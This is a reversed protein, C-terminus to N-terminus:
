AALFPTGLIGEPQMPPHRVESNFERDELNRTTIRKFGGEFPEIGWVKAERFEPFRLRPVLGTKENTMGDSM